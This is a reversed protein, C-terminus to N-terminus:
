SGSCREPRWWQFRTSTMASLSSGARASHHEASSHDGGTDHIAGDHVRRLPVDHEEHGTAHHSGTGHSLPCNRMFFVHRANVQRLGIARLSSEPASIASSSIIPRLHKRPRRGCCRACGSKGDDFPQRRRNRIHRCADHHGMMRGSYSTLSISVCLTEYGSQPSIQNDNSPM